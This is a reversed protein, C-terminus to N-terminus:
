RTAKAAASAVPVTYVDTAKGQLWEAGGVILLQGDATTVMRHFLRKERLQGAQRWEGAAEDLCYVKAAVNSVYVKGGAAFASTGFGDMGEGPLAPAKTWKGQKVDFADVEMSVMRNPQMGGIAYVKGDAAALSLARRQFPPKPLEKWELSEASVDLVYATDHWKPEADKGALRWGGVVYIRDGLVVADHSSRGEPLAAIAAWKNTEPDFEAVEASSHLDQEEDASNRAMFGGIRYLKGGYAVLALGQLKPGRPLEEWKAGDGLRLRRFQDSQEDASYDHEGGRHGGYIYLSDGVVAAGFSTVGEPMEAYQVSPAAAKADSAASEVPTPEAAPLTPAFWALCALGCAVLTATQPRWSRCDVLRKM